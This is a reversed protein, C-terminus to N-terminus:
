RKKKRLRQKAEELTLFKGEGDKARALRAAIIDKHWEPSQVRGASMSKWLLEMTQLKEAATMREILAEDIM